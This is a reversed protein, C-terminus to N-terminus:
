KNYNFQEGDFNCCIDTRVYKFFRVIQEITTEIDQGTNLQLHIRHKGNNYAYHQLCVKYDHRYSLNMGIPLKFRSSHITYPSDICMKKEIDINALESVKNFIYQIDLNSKSVKIVDTGNSKAKNLVKTGIYTVILMVSVIALIIFIIEM